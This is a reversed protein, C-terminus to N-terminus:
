AKPNPGWINDEASDKCTWILFIIPGALPILNILYWWGSRGIDHLRRINLALTPVWIALSWIWAFDGLLEGLILGLISVSLFGFWFESRRSRGKFDAYRLFFLKFAELFGTRKGGMDVYGEHVCDEGHSHDPNLVTASEKQQEVNQRAGCATCFKVSDELLEGCNKCIM